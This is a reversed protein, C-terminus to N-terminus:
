PVSTLRGILIKDDPHSAAFTKIKEVIADANDPIISAEPTSLNFGHLELAGFWMHTHSDSIGPIVTQGHLDIVETRAQRRSLVEQDTGVTEIRTGAIALAQVWPAKTNGTYIHGHILLTDAAFLV